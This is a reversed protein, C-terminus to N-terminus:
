PLGGACSCTAVEAPKSCRRRLARVKEAKAAGFLARQEGRQPFLVHLLHRGLYLM